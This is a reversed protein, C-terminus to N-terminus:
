TAAALLSAAPTWGTPAIPGVPLGHALRRRHWKWQAELGEKLSTQPSWGLARMTPGIIAVTSRPDGAPRPVTRVPVIRGALEEVAAIVENLCAQVGGGVDLTRGAAGEVTGAAATAAAVDRAFTFERSQSGSGRRVFAPGAPRAAEFIRHMAMDPRQRPGFVTFYRLTVIDLGRRSYVGALHECAAKSAGYPSTPSLRRNGGPAATDGYVSSSSALVVRGVGAALAAELVAQTGSVNVDWTEARGSGWSDQVGPRAALHYVTGAGDFLRALDATRVDGVGLRFSPHSTAAAINTAKQAPSRAPDFSDLGLVRHGRELLVETLHSGIFGAAGTVVAFRHQEIPASRGNASYEGLDVCQM